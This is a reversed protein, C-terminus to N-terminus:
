GHRRAGQVIIGTLFAFLAFGVILSGVVLDSAPYRVSVTALSRAGSADEVRFRHDGKPLGTVFYGRDSGRYLVKGESMSSSLQYPPEGQSWRLVVHGENADLSTEEFRFSGKTEALVDIGSIVFLLYVLARPWRM